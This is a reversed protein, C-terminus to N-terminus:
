KVTTVKSLRILPITYDLLPINEFKNFMLYEKLDNIALNFNDTLVRDLIM